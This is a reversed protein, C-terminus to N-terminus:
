LVEFEGPVEQSAGPECALEFVRDVRATKPGAQLWRCLEQVAPAAGFAAVEVSGDPLNRAYGTVALREAEVRTSQRFFVGQVRGTVRFRRAVRDV